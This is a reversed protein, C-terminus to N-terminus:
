RAQSRNMRYRICVLVVITLGLLLPVFLRRDILASSAPEGTTYERIIKGGPRDIEKVHVGDPIEFDQFHVM